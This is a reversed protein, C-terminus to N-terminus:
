SKKLKIAVQKTYFSFAVVEYSFGSNECFENLAKYEDEEWKNNMIFEDFILITKDDVVRNSYNLACLTSSYLDADFNIVSATPREKSFFNPLTDEFKGVIFEGGDIKPVNGFNSYSGKIEHHWAEPLGVFTDFGFGKKFTNILYQFSVGKWVGFEYFPRSSESLAIVANFFSSKNFFIRPLKHLSFIWKISRIYPHKSYSSTLLNNFEKLNGKYAKLASVMIKSEIHTSDVKYIKNLISIAEDISSAVSHLNWQPNVFSPNIKVSKEYCEKAKQNNGLELFIAGLNNYAGASNPNLEIAKEYCDKAKQYEGLEQLLVGLNFNAILNNPDIKLSKEFCNKAKQYERLKKFAVGLNSQTNTNNPNIVIAKKYCDKAKEFDNSNQFIVGLNSHADEYNPDIELVERYLDVAMEIKNEQHNKVALKFTENLTM